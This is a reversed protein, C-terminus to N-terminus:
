KGSIPLGSKDYIVEEETSENTNTKDVANTNKSEVKGPNYTKTDLNTQTENNLPPAVVEDTTSDAEIPDETASGKDKSLPHIEVRHIPAYFDESINETDIVKGDVSLTRTVIAEIGEKGEHSVVVQGDDIFTSYQRVTKPKYTELKSVRPEYTYYFPRGEISVHITGSSWAARITFDTKNSNTFKLDLGLTQNMAAEFGPQITSSVVTGVNREDVQFNTQLVASYLISSLLTM